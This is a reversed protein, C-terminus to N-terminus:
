AHGVSVLRALFQVPELKLSAEDVLSGRLVYYSGRGTEPVFDFLRYLRYSGVYQKSFELENASLYFDTQPGGRTTKVEIHRASGDLEFSAIDHGAGDGEIEAVHRVGVALDERGNERLWNQERAV